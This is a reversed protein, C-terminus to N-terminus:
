VGSSLPGMARIGMQKAAEVAPQIHDNEERGFMGEEGAHPNLGTVAISPNTIGFLGVAKNVAKIVDLVLEKSIMECAERLSVHLTTNAVRLEDAVLMMFPHKAGILDAIYYPYGVFNYGALEAAKKSHPGGVGAHISGEQFYEVLRKTYDLMAQGTTANSKGPQLESLPISDLDILNIKSGGWMADKPSSVKNFEIDVQFQNAARELIKADGVALPRCVDHIKKEVLAKILIEPGIGSAEGMTVAVIPKPQM